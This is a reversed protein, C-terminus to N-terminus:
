RKKSSQNMKKAYARKSRIGSMAEIFKASGMMLATAGMIVEAPRENWLQILKRVGPNNWFEKSNM